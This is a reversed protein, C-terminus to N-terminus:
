GARDHRIGASTSSLEPIDGMAGRLISALDAAVRRVGEVSDILNNRVEIMVNPLGAAVGHDRLTHTVGDKAAYPENLATKMDTNQAACRLMAEAMRADDDHLLGLQVQRAKGLFVPTFSHITVLVTSGSRGALVDALLSRFPAYVDRVRAALAGTSLDENGPVVFRESRAPVADPAQPPRNCDYVLRSVRSAILPADLERMLEEALDLAGIDWAAHSTKAEESLGLGSLSAPIFRSAHECVLVVNGLGDANQVQAPPGEEDSMVPSEDSDKMSGIPAHSKRGTLLFETSMVVFPFYKSALTLFCAAM